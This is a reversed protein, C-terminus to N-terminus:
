KTTALKKDLGELAVIEKHLKDVETKMEDQAGTGIAQLRCIHEQM